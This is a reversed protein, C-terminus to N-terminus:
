NRKERCNNKNKKERTAKKEVMELEKGAKGL